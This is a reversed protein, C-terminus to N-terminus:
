MIGQEEMYKIVHHAWGISPTGGMAIAVSITELLEEKTAGQEIALKPQFNICRQCGIRIAIATAMLHKMKRSIAGDKYTAERVAAQANMVEPMADEYMQRLRSTEEIWETQNQVQKYEM